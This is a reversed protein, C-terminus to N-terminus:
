FVDYNKVLRGKLIKFEGQEVIAKFSHNNIAKVRKNFVLNDIQESNLLTVSLTIENLNRRDVYIVHYHTGLGGHDYTLIWKTNLRVGYIFRRCPFKEDLVFDTANWEGYTDAMFHKLKTRTKEKHILYNLSDNARLIMDTVDIPIEKLGFVFTSSDSKYIRNILDIMEKEESQAIVCIPTLLFILVVAKMM